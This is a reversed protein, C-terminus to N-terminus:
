GPPDPRVPSGSATAEAGLLRRRIVAAAYARGPAAVDAAVEGLVDLATRRDLGSWFAAVAFRVAADDDGAAERLVDSGGDVAALHEVVAAVAMRDFVEERVGSGDLSGSLEEARSRLQQRCEDVTLRHLARGLEALRGSLVNDNRIQESFYARDAEYAGDQLHHQVVRIGWRDTGILDELYDDPRGDPLILLCNVVTRLEVRDLAVVYRDGQRDVRM